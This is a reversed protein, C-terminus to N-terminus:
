RVDTPQACLRRSRAVLDRYDSPQIPTFLWKFLRRHQDAPPLGLDRLVQDFYGFTFPTVYIGGEFSASLLRRRVEIEERIVHLMQARDPLVLSGEMWRALWAAGAEAALQCVGVGNYGNFAM